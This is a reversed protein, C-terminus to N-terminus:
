YNQLKKTQKREKTKNKTRKKQTNTKVTKVFTIKKGEFSVAQHHCKAFMRRVDMNLGNGWKNGTGISRYGRALRRGKVLLAEVGLM